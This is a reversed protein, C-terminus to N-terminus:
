RGPAAGDHDQRSHVYTQATELAECANEWMVRDQGGCDPEWRDVMAKLADFLKDIVEQRQGIRKYETIDDELIGM